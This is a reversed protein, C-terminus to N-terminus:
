LETTKITVTFQTGTAPDSNFSLEGGHAKVIDYALSLGLGTGKGTPKTTFFPQFIKDVISSPIGPGNDKVTIKVEQGGPGDASPSNELHTKVVVLPKYDENNEKAKKDVAYFANNILNLLVRGIDQPVVNIKPLNPDFDTKFEANFSKDKARFGHYSLRLYEDALANIDVLEKHGSSGRSHLLMGKVISEARKGYHIIKQENKKLDNLISKVELHNRKENEDLAEDILETNVESFNNVFNLPNQIEHAIGATLQGLSAMKESHILQKQARRLNELSQNLEKTREAVKLELHTYLDRFRSAMFATLGLPVSGYVLYNLVSLIEFSFDKTFRSYFVNTIASFILCLFAVAVIWVDKQKNRWALILVRASFYIIISPFVIAIVPNVDTGSLIFNALAFVPFLWILMKHIKRPKQKLMSNLTLPLMSLAAIFLFIFPIYRIFIMQWVDYEFLLGGYSVIVHLFLLSVLITIYLNSREAPFLIFLFGHLLIILLLMTGLIYFEQQARRDRTTTQQDWYDTGLGISFGFTHAYKGLLEKYRQGKHYSFRVALVHSDAPQLIVAPHIRNSTMYRKEGQLNTSFIGYKQLLNGDLYVEAAGYTSFYLRSIKTYVSSDAAFRFRFWGYGNWLSDPIPDYLLLPNYFMWSSDDFGPNAWNLDDGPHFRWGGRRHLRVIGYEDFLLDSAVFIKENSSEEKQIEIKLLGNNEKLFSIKKNTDAFRVALVQEKNIKMPFSLPKSAPNYRVISDPNNSVKGLSHILEGDLYIESAGSQSIYTVLKQTTTSDISVRKRYWIITTKKVKKQIKKNYLNVDTFTQWSSDDFDPKAWEPNDGAKYKWDNALTNGGYKELSPSLNVPKTEQAKLIIPIFLLVFILYKM